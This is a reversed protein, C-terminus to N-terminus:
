AAVAKPMRATLFAQYDKKAQTPNAKPWYRPYPPPFVGHDALSMATKPGYLGDVKLTGEATQYASVAKRDEKGPPAKALHEALAAAMGAVVRTKEDSAAPPLAIPEIKGTSAENAMNTLVAATTAYGQKALTDAAKLLTAPDASAAVKTLDDISADGPKQPQATGGAPGAKPNASTANGSEEGQMLLYLAGAGLLPLIIPIPM